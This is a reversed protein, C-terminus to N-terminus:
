SSIKALEEELPYLYLSSTGHLTPQYRSPFRTNKIKEVFKMNYFGGEPPQSGKPVINWLIYFFGKKIERGTYFDYDLDSHIKTM